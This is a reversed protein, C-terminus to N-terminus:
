SCNGATVQQGDPMGWFLGISMKMIVAVVNQCVADRRPVSLRFCGQAGTRRLEYMSM